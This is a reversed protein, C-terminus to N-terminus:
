SYTFILQCLYQLIKCRFVLATTSRLRYFRHITGADLMQAGPKRSSSIFHKNRGIGGGAHRFDSATGNGLYPATLHCERLRPVVKNGM